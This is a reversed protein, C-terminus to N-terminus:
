NIVGLGMHAFAFPGFSCFHATDLANAKKSGAWELRLTLRPDRSACSAISDLWALPLITTRRQLRKSCSSRFNTPWSKESACHSRNPNEQPANAILLRSQATEVSRCAAGVVRARTHTRDLFLLVCAKGECGKVLSFDEDCVLCESFPPCRPLTQPQV